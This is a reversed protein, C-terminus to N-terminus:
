KAAAPLAQGFDAQRPVSPKSMPAPGLSRRFWLAYISPLVFLTLFTAAALGGMITVAMPGWFASESLPVMAFIAALATLVVPRARRQTASVIAERRSVELERVDTEIQDVLIVTNRMDMGALAILGLLAVFGFPMHALNLAVSAGVIGLPATFFVIALRSFSQLQIMLLTLMGLLM